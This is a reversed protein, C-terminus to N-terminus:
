VVGMGFGGKGIRVFHDGSKKVANRFAIFGLDNAANGLFQEPYTVAAGSRDRERVRSFLAKALCLTPPRTRQEAVPSSCRSRHDTSGIAKDTTNRKDHSAEAADSRGASSSQVLSTPPASRM